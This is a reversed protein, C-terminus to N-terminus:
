CSGRPTWVCVARLRGQTCRHRKLAGCDAAKPRKLSFLAENMVESDQALLRGERGAAARARSGARARPVSCDSQALKDWFLCSPVPLLQAPARLSPLVSPSLGNGAGAPTGTPFPCPSHGPLKGLQFIPSLLAPPLRDRTWPSVHSNRPPLPTRPAAQAWWDCESHSSCGLVPCSARSEHCLAERDLGSWNVESTPTHFSVSFNFGLM